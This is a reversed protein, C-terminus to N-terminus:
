FPVPAPGLHEELNLLERPVLDPSADVPPAKLVKLKEALFTPWNAGPADAPTIRHGELVDEVVRTPVSRALMQLHEILPQARDFDRAMLLIQAQIARLRARLDPDEARALLPEFSPDDLFLGKTMGNVLAGKFDRGVSTPGFIETFNDLGVFRATDFGTGTSWDQFALWITLLMPVLVFVGLLVLAPGLMVLVASASGFRHQSQKVVDNGRPRSAGNRRGLASFPWLSERKRPLAGTTAAAAM